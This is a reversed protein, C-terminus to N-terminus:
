KLLARAKETVDALTVREMEREMAHQIEMLHGDLIGHINRGLPCAPNPSEHFRFLAHSGLSEVAAFVARLTIQDLPQRIHAGGERGRTVEILGARRLQGLIRRVIVPHVGISGALTESTASEEAGYVAIYILMHVAITFRSSIQM